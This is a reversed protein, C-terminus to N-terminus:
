PSKSSGFFASIQRQSSPLPLPPTAKSKKKMPSFGKDAPRSRACDIAPAKKVKGGEHSSRVDDCSNNSRKLTADSSSSNTPAVTLTDSEKSGKFFKTIPRVPSSELSVRKTCDADVYDLKNVAKSVPHWALRMVEDNAGKEKRPPSLTASESVKQTHLIELAKQPPVKPSNDLWAEIQAPGKLLCLCRHHLWDLPTDASKTTLLSVSTLVSGQFSFHYAL